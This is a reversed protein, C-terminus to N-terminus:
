YYRCASDDLHALVRCSIPQWAVLQTFTSHLLDQFILEDQGIDSLQGFISHYALQTNRLCCAPNVTSVDLGSHAKSSHHVADTGPNPKSHCEQMNQMTPNQQSVCTHIQSPMPVEVTSVSYAAQM